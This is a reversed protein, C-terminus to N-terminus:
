KLDKKNRKLYMRIAAESLGLARAIATNPVKAHHARWLAVEYNAKAQKLEVSRHRLEDLAHDKEARESVQTMTM